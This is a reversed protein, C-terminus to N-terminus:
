ISVTGNPFKLDPLSDILSVQLAAAIFYFPLALLLFASVIAERKENGMKKFGSSFAGIMLGTVQLLIAMGAMSVLVISMNYQITTIQSKKLLLFFGTILYTMGAINATFDSIKFNMKKEKVDDVM